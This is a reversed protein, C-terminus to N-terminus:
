VTAKRFLDAATGPCCDCWPLVMQQIKGRKTKIYPYLGGANETWKDGTHSAVIDTTQAVASNTGRAKRQAAMQMTVSQLKHGMVIDVLDKFAMLLLFAALAAGYAVYYGWGVAAIYIGTFMAAVAFLFALRGLWHHGLDWIGRWRHAKLPRWILSSIAQLAAAVVALIGLAKHASQGSTKYVDSTLNGGSAAGIIALVLGVLSLARHLHFWWTNLERRLSHALLIVLPFVVAWTVANIWAHGKLQGSHGSCRHGDCEPEAPTQLLLRGPIATGTQQAQALRLISFVCTACAAAVKPM